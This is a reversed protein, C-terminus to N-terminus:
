TTKVRAEPVKVEFPWIKAQAFRTLFADVLEGNRQIHAPDILEVRDEVGHKYKASPVEFWTFAISPSGKSPSRSPMRAMFDM